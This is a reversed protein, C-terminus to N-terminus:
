EKPEDPHQYPGIETWGLEEPELSSIHAQVAANFRKRLQKSKSRTMPGELVTPPEPDSHTNVDNGGEELPKSRLVSDGADYPSLDAVNFTHSINFEGPLDLHYANDNIKALVKFPGDGRPALKSARKNQFREPRMHM